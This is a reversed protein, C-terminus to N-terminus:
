LMALRALLESKSAEYVSIIESLVVDGGQGVQAMKEARACERGLNELGLNLASGKLFHMDNALDDGRGLRLRDVVEEVEEVFISVVEGVDDPGIDDRLEAVRDWNIM